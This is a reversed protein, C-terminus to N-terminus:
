PFSPDFELSDLGWIEIHKVSERDMKILRRMPGHRRSNMSNEQGPTMPPKKSPYIIEGCKWIMNDGLGVYRLNAYEPRWLETALAFVHMDDEANNLKEDLDSGPRVLFRLAWLKPIMHLIQRFSRLPPVATSFGLQELNPCMQCLRFLTDDSLQWQDSLLLHRMTRHNSEIVALYDGALSKCQYETVPTGTAGSAMCSPTNTSPTSPTTTTSSPKSSRVRDLLYLRELGKFQSLMQVLEKDIVDGRFSKLNTPIKRSSNLRWTDDLFVTIPDSTGMSNIVTLEEFKSTDLTDDMGEGQNRTYLNYIAFRKMPLSRQAAYARGFYNMLNVSEEGSERMRPSWHMMLNELRTSTALLLSIDDPYCLPDMNYVVLTQLNPLPPILTTPRPIRTTPCRLTLSTLAPKGMIGQYVTQLPKTNLEWHFAHLNKMKDLAARMVVQLVMSNDPVRGKNYADTDHESWEGVVRFSHVYDTFTRSVLTNLGMAFPSGSGYGEPKGNVYRIESYSRLTVKEYLRPLTMYYFLRSSRTVRALDAVSDLHSLILTILHLPLEKGAGSSAQSRAPSTLWGHQPAM